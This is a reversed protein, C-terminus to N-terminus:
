NSPPHTLSATTGSVGPPLERAPVGCLLQFAPRSFRGGSKPNQVVDMQEHKPGGRVEGGGLNGMGM